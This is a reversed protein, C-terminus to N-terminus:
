EVHAWTERNVIAAVAHKSCGIEQVIERRSRGGSVEARIRRVDDATFRSTGIREGRTNRGKSKADDYNSKATGLFLHEPNCCARVGCRPLVYLDGRPGIAAEYAFDHARMHTRNSHPGHAFKGYGDRDKGGTWLWCGGLASGKDVRSWFWSEVVGASNACAM